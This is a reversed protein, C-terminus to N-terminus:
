IEFYFEQCGDPVFNIERSVKKDNCIIDIDYKGYFAKFYFYDDATESTINTQWTKNILEDLIDFAPKRRFNDGIIGGKYMAEYWGSTKFSFKESLNWYTISEVSQHSFWISYLNKLMEAQMDEDYGFATVESIQLKKGFKGYLDM